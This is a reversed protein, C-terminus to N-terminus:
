VPIDALAADCVMGRDYKEQQNLIEDLLSMQHTARSAAQVHVLDSVTIGLLRM